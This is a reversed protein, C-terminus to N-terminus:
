YRYSSFSYTRFLEGIKDQKFKRFFTLIIILFLLPNFMGGRMKENGDDDTLDRDDIKGKRTITLNPEPLPPSQHNSANYSLAFNHYSIAFFINDSCTIKFRGQETPNINNPIYLSTKGTNVIHTALTTDFTEGGNTSLYVDVDNCSIPPQQTNAVNWTLETHEGITYQLYPLDLAFRTGTNKIYLTLQDSSTNGRGDQTILKFNLVRQTYPLTEGKSPQHSLINNLAPFVRIPSRTALHTRFLANNGLDLNVPSSNGADVQQWSYFLADNEPDNALGSLSFPTGAPLTYDRGANVTPPQNPNSTHTGCNTATKQQLTTHIQEISGIHFMADAKVQLNDSGCIGSYGMITSGSGPEFATRATRTNSTCQGLNSNFTHTAGFQHAIEHAVFDINFGDGNPNNIGSTGKAKSDISCLSNIVALGGGSTGLVHGIDYNNKGIIHDLTMQNELILLHSQGNTFPDSNPDTFIIEDNNDALTLHIGLDREYIQNLRNLTTVIASLGTAITGGQTRTYEATAAIAIRYYHLTNSNNKQQPHEDQDFKARISLTLKNENADNLKCQHPTIPSQDTKKYSYYHNSNNGQQTTDTPIPDIYIIEGTDTQLMAHLGLPTFDLRGNIIQQSQSILRYTQIQPYKKALQPPLVASKIPTVLVRQGNPLPLTIETPQSNQPASQPLNLLNQMKDKDLIFEGHFNNKNFTITTNSNHVQIDVQQWLTNNAQVSSIYPLIAWAIFFLKAKNKM